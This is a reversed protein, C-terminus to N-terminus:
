LSSIESKSPLPITSDLYCFCLRQDAERYGSLQDTDRQKRMLLFGTKQYCSEYVSEM